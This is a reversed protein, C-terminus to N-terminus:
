SFRLTTAPWYGIICWFLVWCSAGISNFLLFTPFRMESAGAILGNLQRLVDIFRAVLVIRYGRRNFYSEFKQYRKPPMGIYKGYRIFVKRGILSGILFSFSDGAIAVALALVVVMVINLKGIAAFLAAMILVTEGPVPLGVNELLLIAAMGEYGYKNVFPSIATLVSPLNAPLHTM